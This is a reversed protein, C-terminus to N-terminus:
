NPKNGGKPKLSPPDAQKPAPKDNAAAPVTAAEAPPEDKAPVPAVPRTGTFVDAGSAAELRRKLEENDEVFRTNQTRLDICEQRQASLQSELTRVHNELHAVQERMRSVEETSASAGGAAITFSPGYVYKGAKTLTGAQVGAVALREYLEKGSMGPAKLLWADILEIRQESTYSAKLFDRLQRGTCDPHPQQSVDATERAAVPSGMPTLATGSEEPATLTEVM